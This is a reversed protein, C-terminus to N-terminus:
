GSPSVVILNLPESFDIELGGMNALAARVEETTKAGSWGPLSVQCRVTLGTPPGGDRLSEDPAGLDIQVGSPLANSLRSAVHEAWEREPAALVVDAYERRPPPDTPWTQALRDLVAGTAATKAQLTPLKELWEATQRGYEDLLATLQELPSLQAQTTMPGLTTM